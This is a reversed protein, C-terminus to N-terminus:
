LKDEEHEYRHGNDRIWDRADALTGFAHPPPEPDGALREVNWGIVHRSRGQYIAKVHRAEIIWHGPEVCRQELPMVPGSDRSV